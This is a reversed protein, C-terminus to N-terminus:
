EEYADLATRVRACPEPLEHRAAPDAAVTTVLCVAVVAAFGWGGRHRSM